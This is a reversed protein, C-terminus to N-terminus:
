YVVATVNSPAAVGSQSAASYCSTADFPLASGSGDAPGRLINLYCNQAPIIYSYGGPGNGGAVDPGIPPWPASIGSPVNFFSPKSSHYFSAPLTRSSPTTQAAIFPVAVPSSEVADWRVAGSATDYNGWRMLTSRVLPDNPVGAAGDSGCIGGGFGLTYIMANCQSRTYTNPPYAEYLTHYASTGLVNGIINYGRNFSDLDFPFTQNTPQCGSCYINYDRGTIRNRFVTQVNSTGHLQDAFLGGIVNGEYLSMYDDDSHSLYDAQMYTYGVAVPHNISFNYGWVTGAEGAVMFCSSVQQCINNEILCDDCPALEVGYSQSAANKVGYM